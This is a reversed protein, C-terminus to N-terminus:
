PTVGATSPINGAFDDLMPYNSERNLEILFSHYSVESEQQVQWSGISLEALSPDWFTMQAGGESKSEHVPRSTRRDPHFM